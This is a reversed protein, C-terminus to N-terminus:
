FFQLDNIAPVGWLYDGFKQSIRFYLVDYCCAAGHCHILIRRRVIFSSTGVFSTDDTIASRGRGRIICLVAM